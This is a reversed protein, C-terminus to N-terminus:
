ITNGIILNPTSVPSVVQQLNNGTIDCSYVSWLSTTTNLVVFFVTQGDPSLRPTAQSNNNNVILNAPLTIPIQTQNTGDYNCTWIQIDSGVQKSYIIKNLQTTTKQPNSNESNSCSIQFLIGALAFVSLYLTSRLLNKMINPKIKKLILNTKPNKPLNCV